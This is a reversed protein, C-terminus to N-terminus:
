ERRLRHLQYGPPAQEALEDTTPQKAARMSEAARAERALVADDFEPLSLLELDLVRDSADMGAQASLANNDQPLAFQKLEWIWAGSFGARSLIPLANKAAARTAY